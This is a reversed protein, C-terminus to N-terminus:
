LSRLVRYPCIKEPTHLEKVSSAPGQSVPCALAERLGVARRPIPGATHRTSAQSGQPWATPPQPSAPLQSLSMSEANPLQPPSVCSLSFFTLCSGRLRLLVFGKDTLIPEKLNLIPAATATPLPTPSPILQGEERWDTEFGHNGFPTGWCVLELPRQHIPSPVNQM